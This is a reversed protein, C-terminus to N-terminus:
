LLFVNQEHLESRSVEQPNFTQWNQVLRNKYHAGHTYHRLTDLALDVNEAHTDPSSWIQDLTDPAAGGVVKFIM